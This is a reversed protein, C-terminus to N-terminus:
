VFKQGIAVGYACYGGFAPMYKGPNETFLKQHEQKAVAYAVGEHEMVHYGSGRVPKGDIFDAVPDYGCLGPTRHRVNAAFFQGVALSVVLTPGVIIQPTFRKM